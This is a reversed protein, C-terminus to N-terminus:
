PFHNKYETTLCGHKGAEDFRNSIDSLNCLFELLMIVSKWNDFRTLASKCENRIKDNLTDRFRYNTLKVMEFTSFWEMTDYPEVTSDLLFAHSTFAM